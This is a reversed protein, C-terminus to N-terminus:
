DVVFTLSHRTPDNGVTYYLTYTGAALGKTALNFIYGGLCSDYRFLDNPNANGASNLPVANGSSDVLSTAKVAINPSSIDSGNADTLALKIPLVAGSHVPKSNKFLLKSGYAVTLSSNGSVATFNINGAYRYTISYTGVGLCGTAFSVSFSGDPAVTADQTVGNITISVSQGMPIAITNSTLRGSVTTTNTGVIIQKTTLNSLSTTAQAITFTTQASGGAYEPDSSTFAAVVTYTGADVPVASLPTGGASTGAYYTYTFSGAVPTTSDIGVATATVSFRNGNYIGGTDVVKITPAYLVTTNFSISNNNPNAVDIFPAVSATNNLITGVTTGSIVQVVLTFTVSNNAPL